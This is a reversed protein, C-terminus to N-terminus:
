RSDTMKEIIIKSKSEPHIHVNEGKQLKLFEALKKNIRIVYSSGAIGVKTSAELGYLGKEQVIRQIEDSVDEDFVTERCKKCVEAEFNGIHEGLYVYDIIEKKIMGECEECKIRKYSM